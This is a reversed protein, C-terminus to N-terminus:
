ERLEAVTVANGHPGADPHVSAVLPHRGLYDRVGQRLRGTGIGHVVKLSGRGALVAQDLAKDVLPLADDVTLGIVKLDLGDGAGARVSVPRPEGAERAAEGAGAEAPELEAAPVQVRVGSKGVKVAVTEAGPRLDEALAGTQNLRTLRVRSGARLEGPAAEPREPRPPAVAAAAEDLARRRAQYLEQRVAGPKAPAGERAEAEARSYLAELREELRRAVERVRRKGEALAQSRRAAAEQRLERARRREGAARAADEAARAAQRAAEQREAEAERLLEV